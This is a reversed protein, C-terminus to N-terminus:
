GASIFIAHSPPQVRLFPLRRAARQGGPGFAAPPEAPQAGHIARARQGRGLRPLGARAPAVQPATPAQPACAAATSRESAAAGSSELCAERDVLVGHSAKPKRV